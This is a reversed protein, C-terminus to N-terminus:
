DCYDTGGQKIKRPLSQGHWHQRAEATVIGPARVSYAVRETACVPNLEKM